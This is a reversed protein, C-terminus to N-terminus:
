NHHAASLSYGCPATSVSTQWRTQWKFWDEAEVSAPAANELQAALDTAPTETVYASLTPRTRCWKAIDYISEEALIPTSDFGLIYTLVDSKYGSSLGPM